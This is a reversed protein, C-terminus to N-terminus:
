PTVLFKTNTKLTGSSGTVTVFGTTAGKPVTTKILTSSVVKFTAATGNFRVSTTGTLDTGLIDISHGVAGSAPLAEVFPSLSPMSLSFVTGDFDAGGDYNTGYLIGNTAQFLGAETEFGDSSQDFSHLVTIVGGPTIEFITGFLNAGGTYTTGYFNGDNGQVLADYPNAGDPCNTLPCFNYITTLAGGPTIKYITGSNNAGGIYTTGYFDGNAAQIPGALPQAGDTSDFSHLTTLTGAPTVKFITGDGNAGGSSTAGFFDGNSALVLGSAGEGDACDAFSCFPYLVTLTGSPTIKFFTGGGKAGEVPTTGYFDGNTGQVLASTPREGDTCSTQSCFNYLTTLAGASTIQFVTGGFHTGGGVTTGYLDGNTAQVLAARPDDGDTCAGVACFSYLTTITGGPTINFVTGAFNAGGQVTTGYLNGDIGQVLGAEPNAGDTLDFSQLTTFTQASISLVLTLFGVVVCAVRFKMPIEGKPIPLSHRLCLGNCSDPIYNWAPSFRPVHRFRRSPTDETAAAKDIHLFKSLWSRDQGSFVSIFNAM